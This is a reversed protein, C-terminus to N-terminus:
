YEGIHNLQVVLEDECTCAGFSGNVKVHMVHDRAALDFVRKVVCTDVSDASIDCRTYEPKVSHVASCFCFFYCAVSPLFSHWFAM